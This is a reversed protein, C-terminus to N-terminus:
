KSYVMGDYWQNIYIMEDYLQNNFVMVIEM